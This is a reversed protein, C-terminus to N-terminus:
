SLSFILGAKNYATSRHKKKDKIGPRNLNAHPSLALRRDKGEKTLLDVGDQDNGRIVDKGYVREMVVSSQQAQPFDVLNVEAPQSTGGAVLM